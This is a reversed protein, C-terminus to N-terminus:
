VPTAARTEGRRGAKCLAVPTPSPAARKIRNLIKLRSKRSPYLVPQLGALELRMLRLRRSSKVPYFGCSKLFGEDLLRCDDDEAPTKRCFAEVTEIGDRELEAVAALLLSKRVPELEPGSVSSCTILVSNGGPPGCALQRSRPFLGSPGFQVMGLLRGDGMALKGWRGFEEEARRGWAEAEAAAPWGDEHGQWWGCQRCKAPVLRSTGLCLNNLQFIM